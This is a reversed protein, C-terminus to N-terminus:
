CCTPVRAIFLSRIAIRDLGRWVSGSMVWPVCVGCMLPVWCASCFMVYLGCITAAVINSSLGCGVLHCGGGGCRGAWCTSDMDHSAHLM